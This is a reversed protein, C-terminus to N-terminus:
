ASEALTRAFSVSFVITEAYGKPVVSFEGSLQGTSLINDTRSVRAAVSSAHQPASDILVAALQTTLDIDIADAEDSRIRGTTESVILDENLYSLIANRGTKAASNIVRLNQTPGYDSGAAAFQRGRTIWYGARGSITRLTTFRYADLGGTSEEDHQIASVKGLSGSRV